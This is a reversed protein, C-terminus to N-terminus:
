VRLDDRRHHRGAGPLAPRRRVPPHLRQRVVGKEFEEVNLVQMEVVYRTGQADSCTVGVIPHKIESIHPRQERLLHDVSAIRHAEDLELLHNLFAILLPKHEESGFIKKFVFDTKPDAFLPRM